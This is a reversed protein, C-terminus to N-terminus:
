PMGLNALQSPIPVGIDDFMSPPNYLKNHYEIAAQRKAAAAQLKARLKMIQRQKRYRIRQKELYYEKNKEYCRRTNARKKDPNATRWRKVRAKVQEKRVIPRCTLCYKASNNAEYDAGCRQCQKIM